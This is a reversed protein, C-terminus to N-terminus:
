GSHVMNSHVAAVAALLSVLTHTEPNNTHVWAKLLGCVPVQPALSAKKSQRKSKSVRAGKDSKKIIVERRAEGDVKEQGEQKKFNMIIKIMIMRVMVMM